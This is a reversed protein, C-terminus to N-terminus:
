STPTGLRARQRELTRIEANCRAREGPACNSRLSEIQDTLLQREDPQPRETMSVRITAPYSSSAGSSADVLIGVLGGVLVNGLTMAQFEAGVHSVSDDHGPRTCNVRLPRSSKSVQVTGPTPNVEGVVQDDRRLQCSAGAPETVVTIAQTTGTTLTACAPLLSALALAPLLRPFASM